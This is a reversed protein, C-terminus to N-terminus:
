RLRCAGARSRSADGARVFVFLNNLGFQFRQHCRLRFGRDTFLCVTDEPEFGYHEHEAMGDLLGVRRGVHIMADVKPSPVTCVVVGRPQLLSLCSTALVQQAAPPIHELVALMTIADYRDGAPLSQPAYGQIFRFSEHDRPVAAADIGVGSAIRRELARFLAGDSCGIDLVHSGHPIYPAAKRIRWSQLFSDGPKIAAGTLTRSRAHL